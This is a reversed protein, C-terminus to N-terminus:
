NAFYNLRAQDRQPLFQVLAGDSRVDVLKATWIFYDNEPLRRVGLQEGSPAFTMVELVVTPGEM